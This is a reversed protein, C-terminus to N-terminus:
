RTRPLLTCLLVGVRSLTETWVMLSPKLPRKLSHRQARHIINSHAFQMVYILYSLFRVMDPEWLSECMGYLQTSATGAVVFDKAFNICGIYDMSCIFPEGDKQLGAVVPATFYPGFRNEGLEMTIIQEVRPM